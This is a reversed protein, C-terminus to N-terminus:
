SRPFLADVIRGSALQCEGQGGGAMGELPNNLSFHCRMRQGDAAQLNAMVRGSYLTAFRPRDNWGHRWGSWMPEFGDSRAESTIQLYPGSFTQEGPLTASMTGTTGGDKSKWAFQVPEGGPSVSGTGTGMTTCAALALAGCLALLPRM